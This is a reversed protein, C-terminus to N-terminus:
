NQLFKNRFVPGVLLEEERETQALALKALRLAEQNEMKNM